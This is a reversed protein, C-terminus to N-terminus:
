QLAEGITGAITGATQGLPGFRSLIPASVRAIKGITSFIKKWHIPNHYFQEMSIVASVGNEFEEPSIEPPLLALYM